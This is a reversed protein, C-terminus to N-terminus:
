SPDETTVRLYGRTEAGPPVPGTWESGTVPGALVQWSLLDQSFEIWARGVSPGWAITIRGGGDATVSASVMWLPPLNDPIPASGFFLDDTNGVQYGGGAVLGDCEIRSVRSGEAENAALFGVFERNTTNRHEALLMGAANYFRTLSNVNWNRQVGARRQPESLRIEYRSQGDPLGSPSRTGTLEQTGSPTTTVFDYPILAAPYDVAAVSPYRQLTTRVTVTVGGAAFPSVPGAPMANFDSLVDGAQGALAGFLERAAPGYVLTGAPQVVPDGGFFLDDTFGVQYGGAANVGDLEIRAVRVAEDSTDAVYAVFERNATNQHAGLLTGAANYFRTVSHVNWDRQVGARLQPASLRIEYRSQGDPGGSPSATGMLEKTGNNTSTVFGYPCVSVPYDVNVVSPYRVQTTRITVQVGNALFPAVPGAPMTEFSVYADGDVDRFGEFQTRASPGYVVGAGGPTQLASMFL